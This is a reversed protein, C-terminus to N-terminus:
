LKLVQLEVVQQDDCSAGTGALGNCWDKAKAQGVSGGAYWASEQAQALVPLACLAAASGFATIVLMKMRGSM